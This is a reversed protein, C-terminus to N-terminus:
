PSPSDSGLASGHVLAQDRERDHGHLRGGGRDKRGVPRRPDPLTVGGVLQCCRPDEDAREGMTPTRPRAVGLPRPPRWPPTARPTFHDAANAYGKQYDLDCRDSAPAM